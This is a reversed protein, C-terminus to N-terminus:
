LSLIPRFGRRGRREGRGRHCGGLRRGRSEGAGTAAASSNLLAASPEEDQATGLAGTQSTPLSEEGQAPEKRYREYFASIIVVSVTYGLIILIFFWFFQQYNMHTTKRLQNKKTVGM